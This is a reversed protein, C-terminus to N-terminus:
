EWTRTDGFAIEPVGLQKAMPIWEQNVYHDHNHELISTMEEKFKKEDYEQEYQM